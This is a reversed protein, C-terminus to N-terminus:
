TQATKRDPRPGLQIRRKVSFKFSVYWFLFFYPKDQLSRKTFSFILKICVSIYATKSIKNNIRVNLNFSSTDFKVISIDIACQTACKRFSNAACIM